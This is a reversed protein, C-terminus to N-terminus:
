LAALTRALRAHNRQADFDSQWHRWARARRAAQAQPAALLVDELAAVARELPVDLPLLASASSEADFAEAVGHVDCAVVPVGHALAEQISVPLGEQASLHVFLDVPRGTYHALV